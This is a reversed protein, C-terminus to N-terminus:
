LIIYVIYFLSFLTLFIIGVHAYRLLGKSPKNEVPFNKGTVAKLNLLAIIPATVFSMTTALDVMFRMSHSLISLLSTTGVLAIAMWIWYMVNKSIKTHIFFHKTIRTMVRPYADLVTISTSFMTALAAIAIIPYAWNGIATTYMSILQGSFQAGNDSLKETAGHMILAGLLLFALAVIGTGIYGINFDLRGEKVSVKQETHKEKSWLSHWVSVDVPSPMWGIFAILFFIDSRKQFSFNNILTQYDNKLGLASIVAVITTIALIAIIYKILGDLLSYKGLALIVVCLVMLIGSILLPDLSLHFVYGVVGATVIVVAASISFMTSVTFIAFLLIAWKGIDRYGTILDKGTANTYRPAFEFFPYKIVMALILFPILDLGYSAGGRTSQVLHSVGVAAAAFLLGPGLLSFTKKLNM